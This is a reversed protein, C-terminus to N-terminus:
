SRRLSRPLSVTIVSMVAQISARSGPPAVDPASSQNESTCVACPECLYGVGNCTKRVRARTARRRPARQLRGRELCEGLDLRKRRVELRALHGHRSARQVNADAPRTRGHQQQVAEAVGAVHPLRESLDQDLIVGDDDGIKAAHSQRRMWLAPVLLLRDPERCRSSLRSSSLALLTESTVCSMPLM